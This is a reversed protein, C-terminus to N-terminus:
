ICNFIKSQNVIEDFSEAVCDYEKGNAAYELKFLYKGSKSLYCILIAYDIDPKKFILVEASLDTNMEKKAEARSLAQIIQINNKSIQSRIDNIIRQVAQRMKVFAFKNLILTMENDLVNQKKTFDRHFSSRLFPIINNILWAITITQGVNVDEYLTNNVKSMYTINYTGEYMGRSISVTLFKNPLKLSTVNIFDDRREVEYDNNRRILAEIYDLGKLGTIEAILADRTEAYSTSFYDCIKGAIFAQYADNGSFLKTDVYGYFKDNEKQMYFLINGTSESENTWSLIIRQSKLEPDVSKFSVSVPSLVKDKGTKNKIKENETEVQRVDMIRSTITKDTLRSVLSQINQIVLPIYKRDVTARYRGLSVQQVKMDYLDFYRDSGIKQLANNIENEFALTDFDNPVVISFQERMKENSFNKQLQYAIEVPQKEGTQYNEIEEKLLEEATFKQKRSVLDNVYQQRKLIENKAEQIQEQQKRLKNANSVEAVFNQQEIDSLTQPIVIENM